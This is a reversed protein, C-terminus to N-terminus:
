GSEELLVARLLLHHLRLSLRVHTEFSQNLGDAELLLVRSRGGASLWKAFARDASNACIIYDFRVEDM